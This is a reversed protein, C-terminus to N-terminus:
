AFMKMITDIFDDDSSCTEIFCQFQSTFMDRQTQSMAAIISQVDDVHQLAVINMSTTEFIPSLTNLTDNLDLLCEDAVSRYHEDNDLDDFIAPNMIM